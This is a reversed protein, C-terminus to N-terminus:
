NSSVKKKKKREKRKRVPFSETTTARTPIQIISFVCILYWVSISLSGSRFPPAPPPPPPPSLAWDCSSATGSASTGRVTPKDQSHPWTLLDTQRGDLPRRNPFSNTRGPQSTLDAISDDPATLSDGTWTIIIAKIHRQEGSEPQSM